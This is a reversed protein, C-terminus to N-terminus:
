LEVFKVVADPIPMDIFPQPGPDTLELMLYELLDKEDYSAATEVKVDTIQNYVIERGNIRSVDGLTVDYNEITYVCDCNVTFEVSSFEVTRDDDFYGYYEILVDQDCNVRLKNGDVSWSVIRSKDYEPENVTVDAILQQLISM